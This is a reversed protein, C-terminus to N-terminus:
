IQHHRVPTQDCADECAANEAPRYQVTDSCVMRRIRLQTDPVEARYGDDDGPITGDREDKSPGCVVRTRLTLSGNSEPHEVGDTLVVAPEM